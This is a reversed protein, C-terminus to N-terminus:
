GLSNLFPTDATRTSLPSPLVSEPQQNPSVFFILCGSVYAVMQGAIPTTAWYSMTRTFGKFGGSKMMMGVLGSLTFTFLYVFGHDENAIAGLLYTDLTTFFGDEINGAVICAGVFVGSILSVEVLQTTAALVLIVILPILSVGSQFSEYSGEVTSTIGDVVLEVTITRRGSGPSTVEGVDISDPLLLGYETLDMSGSVVLDGDLFTSWTLNTTTTTNELPLWVLGKVSVSVADGNHLSKLDEIGSSVDVLFLKLESEEGDIGYDLAQSLSACAVFLIATLRILM